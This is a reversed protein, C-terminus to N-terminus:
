WLKFMYVVLVSKTHDRLDDSEFQCRDDTIPASFCLAVRWTPLPSYDIGRFSPWASIGSSRKQWPFTLSNSKVSGGKRLENDGSISRISRISRISWQVEISDINVEISWVQQWVLIYFYLLVTHPILWYADTHTWTWHGGRPHNRAAVVNWPSDVCRLGCSICLWWFPRLCTERPWSRSNWFKRFSMFPLGCKLDTFTVFKLLQIHKEAFPISLCEEFCSAFFCWSRAAYHKINSSWTRRTPRLNHLSLNEAGGALVSM